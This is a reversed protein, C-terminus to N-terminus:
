GAGEAIANGYLVKGKGDEFIKDVYQQFDPDFHHRRIKWLHQWGSHAAFDEFLAVQSGFMGDDLAGRQWLWHFSQLTRLIRSGLVTFRLRSTDDLHEPGQMGQQWIEALEKSKALDGALDQAATMQAQVAAYRLGASNQRVQFGVFMLSGIVGFAATAEAVASIAVWDM